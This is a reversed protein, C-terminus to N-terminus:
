SRQYPRSSRAIQDTSREDDREWEVNDANFAIVADAKSGYTKSVRETAYNHLHWGDDDPSYVLEVDDSLTQNETM